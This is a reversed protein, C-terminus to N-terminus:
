IKLREFFLLSVWVVHTATDAANTLPPTDSAPGAGTPRTVIRHPAFMLRTRPIRFPEMSGNGAPAFSSPHAGVMDLYTAEYLPVGRISDKIPVNSQFGQM